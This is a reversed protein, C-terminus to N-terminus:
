FFIRDPNVARLKNKWLPLNHCNLAVNQEYQALQKTGIFDFLIFGGVFGFFGALLGKIPINWKM